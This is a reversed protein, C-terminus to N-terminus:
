ATLTPLPNTLGIPAGIASWGGNLFLDYHTLGAIFPTAGSILLSFPSTTPRSLIAPQQDIQVFKFTSPNIHFTANVPASGDNFVFTATVDVAVASPNYLGLQEIYKIGALAPNVFLDGFFYQRAASTATTTSDGDGLKYETVQMTVPINSSYTLGATQGAILGVSALDRNFQSHAPVTFVRVLKPIDTRGYDASFTVIAAQNDTNVFSVFSTSGAGSSINTVVGQTTGGDADGLLGDGGSRPLNYSTLSSVIPQDSTIKVGFKGGTAIRSDNDVGIGGRRLGDVTTMFSSTTGNQYYLTVNLNATVSGPNYFLLFDRYNNHDKNVEAFTWTTSVQNTFSEGVSSSFDYHSFTAGIEGTSRIELSYPVGVRVLAAGLNGRESITIGRRTNAPITGTYIPTPDNAGTEYRAFVQFDVPFSNPNVMPVYENISAGAFGEPFYLFHTTPQAALRLTYSGTASGVPEVLVFYQEGALASFKIAATAGLLGASDQFVLAHAANFVKLQGDVLGGAPTNLQLDVIGDSPVTFTFLDTDSAPNIVGSIAGAGTRTDLGINAADAWEGANPYDDPGGGGGGGGPLSSSITVTYGGVATPGSASPDAIVLIYYQAIGTANFSVSASDGNGNAAFIQVQGASYIVVRPNLTSSPTSIRVSVPGAALTSFSFLDSDNTPVLVANLTGIGSVSNLSINAAGAFDSPAPTATGPTPLYDDIPNTTVAISYAGTDTAGPPLPTKPRVLIYYQQGQIISAIDATISNAATTFSVGGLPTNNSDLIVMDLGLTSMGARSLVVQGTGGAPATFRFLDSDTPIEITGDIAGSSTFNISDFALNIITGNPFDSQNPHDDSPNVNVSLSYRGFDNIPNVGKVIVYYDRGPTISFSAFSNTTNADRNDNRGILLFIDQGAGDKGIEYVLVQPDLTADLHNVTVTAFEYTEGTFKYVDQDGPFEINGTAPGIAGGPGPTGFEGLFRNLTLGTANAWGPTTAGTSNALNSADSFTQDDTAGPSTVNVIYRGQSAVGDVVVYFREGKATPFSVTATQGPAGAGTTVISIQQTAPDFQIIRVRIAFTPDTPQVSVTNQGKAPSFFYFTDADNPNAFPGIPINAIEGSISGRGTIPDVPIAAGGSGDVLFQDAGSPFFDDTGGAVSPSASVILDYAGTAHRWDVLDPNSAFLAKFASEVQIFYSNGRRVNVVIRPDNGGFFRFGSENIGTPDTVGTPTFVPIQSFSNSPAVAYNGDSYGLQVFDNNFVRIAGHLASNFTKAAGIDALLTPPNTLINYRQERFASTIGQTAIRIEVTGDNPARFQYLQSTDPDDIIPLDQSQFTQIGAPTPIFTRTTYASPGNPNLPDQFARGHGNADLVIEPANAFTGTGGPQSLNAIPDILQGSEDLKPPTSDTTVSVTYRGTGGQGSVEVYYVEGGWTSFTFAPNSGPAASPDVSGAPDPNPPAITDNTYILTHNSDFVRLLGNFRADLGGQIVITTRTAARERRDWLGAVNDNFSTLARVTSVGTLVPPADSEGATGAGMTLWAFAGTAPDIMFRAVHNRVFAATTGGIHTFDGGAYLVEYGPTYVPEAPNSGSGDEFATLARVPADPQAGFVAVTTGDLSVRNISGAGAAADGGVILRTVMGSNVGDTTQRYPTMARVISTTALGTVAAWSANNPRTVDYTFLNTGAVGGANTLSGGVYLMSPIDVMAMGTGDDRQNPSDFVGLSFVTGTVGFTGTNNWNVSGLAEFHAVANADTTSKGWRVINNVTATPMAGTATTFKGGIYLGAPEDTLPPTMNGSPPTRPTPPDFVQLAFVGPNVGGTVGGGLADRFGAGSGDTAVGLAAINNAAGFFNTFQGGIILEDTMSTDGVANPLYDFHTLAFVPGNTVIPPSLPNGAADYGYTTDWVYDGVAPNFVRFAINGAPNGNIQDFQGGAVLVPALGGQGDPDWTTFAFIPGNIPGDTTDPPPAPNAQRAQGTHWWTGADWVAVNSRVIPDGTRRDTGASLFNGGTYLATGQNGDDGGYQGLTSLPPTFQFLDTDGSTYLRGTGVANRVWSRDELPNGDADTLRTPAGFRLPTALDWNLSNAPPTNIHDDVPQNADFTHNAEILMQILGNAANDFGEVVLFYRQGGTIPVVLQAFGTGKNFDVSTGNNDFFRVAPQPLGIPPPPAVVSIIGVGSGQAVFTYVRAGTGAPPFLGMPDNPPTPIGLPGINDTTQGLRTQPDIDIVAAETQVQVSFQGVSPNAPSPRLDDARVRVYYTQSPASRLTLFSDTQRGADTDQRLFGRLSQNNSTAGYVDLHPNLASQDMSIAQFIALGDATANSRTVVRFIIEDEQFGLAIPNGGTPLGNDRGLAGAGVPGIMPDTNLTIDVTSADLRLNYTGTNTRGAALTPDAKVRIYYTSGVTGEFGAWGDPASGGGLGVSLTGNNAGSAILAGTSDYVEVFTDLTSAAATTVTDAYVSVFEKTRAGTAPVVFKFLDGTDGATIAGTVVGAHFVSSQDTWGTPRGRGILAAGTATDLTILDAAPNPTWPAPLSPHDVALLVRPEIQELGFSDRADRARGAARAIRAAAHARAAVLTNRNQRRLNMDLM